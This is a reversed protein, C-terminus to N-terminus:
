DLSNDEYNEENKYKNKLKKFMYNVREIKEALTPYDGRELKLDRESYYYLGERETQPKLEKLNSKTKDDLNARENFIYGHSNTREFRYSYNSTFIIVGFDIHIWKLYINMIWKKSKMRAFVKKKQM